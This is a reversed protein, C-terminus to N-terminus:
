LGIPILKQIAWKDARYEHRSILDLPSCVQHTTGTMAHGAEHAIVCNYEVTSQIAYEDIFIAFRNNMGITTAKEKGIERPFIPTSSLSLDEYVSAINNM